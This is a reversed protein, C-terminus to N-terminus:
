KLLRYLTPADLHDDYDQYNIGKEVIFATLLEKVVQILEDVGWVKELFIDIKANNIARITDAHTALGTLLIKKTGLFREDHAIETLLEIGSMEPMVHDSIILAVHKQQADLENLLALCELASECEEIHFLESFCQLDRSLAQLVESEDDVCIINLRQM